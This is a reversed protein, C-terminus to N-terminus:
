EFHKNYFFWFRSTLLRFSFHDMMIESGLSLMVAKTDVRGSICTVNERKVNEHTQFGSSRLIPVHRTISNREGSFSNSLQMHRIDGIDNSSFIYAIPPPINLRKRLM